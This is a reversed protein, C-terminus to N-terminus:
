EIRRRKKSPGATENDGDTRSSGGAGDNEDDHVSRGARLSKRYGKQRMRKVDVIAWETNRKNAMRQAIDVREERIELHEVAVARSWRDCMLAVETAMEFIQKGGDALEQISYGTPNLNSVEEGCLKYIDSLDAHLHDLMVFPNSGRM